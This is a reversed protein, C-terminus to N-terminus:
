KIGTIFAVLPLLLKRFATPSSTALITGLLIFVLKPSVPLQYSPQRFVRGVNQVLAKEILPVVYGYSVAIVFHAM